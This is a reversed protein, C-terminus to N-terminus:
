GASSPRWTKQPMRWDIGELLYGLQAPTIVVTGDAASPRIFRGRELKKTFLCASQGDNWIVKILGGQRGRFCFLPGSHPDRKLIEQVMLSLSPFGKRMDTYDTALWVKVGSPTSIM